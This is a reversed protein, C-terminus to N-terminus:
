TQSIAFADPDTQKKDYIEPSQVCAGKSHEAQTWNVKKEV